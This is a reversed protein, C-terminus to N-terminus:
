RTRRDRPTLGIRGLEPGGVRLHCLTKAAWKSVARRAAEVHNPDLEYEGTDVNLVLYEGIHEPELLAKLRTEYIERGRQIVDTPPATPQAM